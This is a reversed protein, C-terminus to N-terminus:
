PTVREYREGCHKCTIHAAGDHEGERAIRTRRDCRNCVLQVNSYAIPASFDVIGGQAAGKVGAKTHRKQRAVGEVVIRQEDPMTRRVVGRKGRDKGTIVEVTDGSRIDLV